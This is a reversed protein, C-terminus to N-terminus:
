EIIQKVEGCTLMADGFYPNYVKEETSLWYAGKNQDAMPCFQLYVKENIGFLKVATIIHSSLNKFHDRQVKIDSANSMSGAAAKLEKELQMWRTHADDNKLQKMDVKSLNELLNKSETIM